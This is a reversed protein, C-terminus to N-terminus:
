TVFTNKRVEYDYQLHYCDPLCGCSKEHSGFDAEAKEYCPREKLECYRTQEQVQFNGSLKFKSFNAQNCKLSVTHFISHIAIAHM